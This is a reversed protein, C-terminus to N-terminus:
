LKVHVTSRREQERVKSIKTKGKEEGEQEKM